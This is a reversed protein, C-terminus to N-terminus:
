VAVQHEHLIVSSKNGPHGLFEIWDVLEYLVRAVLSLYVIYSSCLLYPNSLGWPHDKTGSIFHLFRYHWINDLSWVLVALSKCTKSVVYLVQYVDLFWWSWIRRGVVKKIYFCSLVSCFTPWTTHAICWHIVDRISLRSVRRGRCFVLSIMVPGSSAM